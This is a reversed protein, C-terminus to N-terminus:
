RAPGTRPRRAGPPSSDTGASRDDRADESSPGLLAACVLGAALVFLFVTLISRHEALVSIRSGELDLLSGLVVVGAVGGLYRMTSSIGAAMGSSASAVSALSANQAAPNALGVGVGLLVLPLRLQSPDNLAGIRMLAVSVICVLTGSVALPRSGFQDTLRGAALSTIVMAIMMFVLLQGIRSAGLDFRADLLLPIEFLLAYMVMNILAVLLTGAAFTRSRFLAFAIVPDGARREAWVFPAIMALGIVLALGGAAGGIQLGAVIATLLGTLLVSGVVDFRAAPAAARKPHATSAAIAASLALVPLNALFVSPWGFLRVLEGGLIPGIGAALSMVAGFAGFARGRRDAPLELRILALTAPVVVAGGAAMLIRSTALVPLNPALFGLLAGAAMTIQGLALVKWHGLRDGLKGGPSQLAIAAVLYTAVLAQTVVSASQQTEAAIAPIAVAIMTSNLPMLAASLCAAVLGRAVGREVM